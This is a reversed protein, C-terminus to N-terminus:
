EKGQILQKEVINSFRRLEKLYLVPDNEKRFETAVFQFANGDEKIGDIEIARDIYAKSSMFDGLKYLAFSVAFALGSYAVKEVAEVGKIFEEFNERSEEFMGLKDAILGRAFDFFGGETELLKKWLVKLLHDQMLFQLAELKSTYELVGFWSLEKDIKDKNKSYFSVIKSSASQFTINVLMDLNQKGFDRKARRLTEISKISKNSVILDKDSHVYEQIEKVLKLVDLIKIRNKYHRRFFMFDEELEKEEGQDLSFLDSILGDLFVDFSNKNEENIKESLIEYSNLLPDDKLINKNNKLKFYAPIYEMLSLSPYHYILLDPQKGFYKNFQDIRKSFLQNEGWPLGVPVNSAVLITNLNSKSFADYVRTTGVINQENLSSLIVVSDALYKTCVGGVESIGTRSDIFVHDPGEFEKEIQKKFNTLLLEGQCEEFIDHWNMASFKQAYNSQTTDGAGIIHIRGEIELGLDENTISYDILNPVEETYISDYLYELLGPRADLDIDCDFNKALEKVYASIGPAEFDFDIVVVRDGSIARLIAANILASTRGVGGKYSYFTTFITKFAKM